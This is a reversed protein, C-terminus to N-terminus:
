RQVLRGCDCLETKQWRLRQVCCAMWISNFWYKQEIDERQSFETIQNVRSDGKWIVTIEDPLYASQM